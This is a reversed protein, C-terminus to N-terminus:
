TLMQCIKFSGLRWSTQCCFRNFISSM